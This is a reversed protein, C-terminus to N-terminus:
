ELSRRLGSLMRGVREAQGYLLQYDDTEVYGQRKAVTLHSITEMLSGFSIEVFRMFDKKSSRGSGEAINASVSVACRRLQSTLGFREDGPFRRTTRYVEDAYEIAATWVDLKEFNFMECRTRDSDILSSGDVMLWRLCM